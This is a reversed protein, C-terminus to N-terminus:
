ASGIRMGSQKDFLRLAATQAGFAVTEGPRFSATAPARAVVSGQPLDLLV